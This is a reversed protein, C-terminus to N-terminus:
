SIDMTHETFDDEAQDLPVRPEYIGERGWSRLCQQQSITCRSLRSRVYSSQMGASSFTRESESSSSLISLFDVAMVSLAPFRSENLKWWSIPDTEFQASDIPEEVIYREYEDLVTAPTQTITSRYPGIKRNLRRQIYSQHAVQNVRPQNFRTPKDKYKAAWLARIRSQYDETWEVSQRTPLGNWMQEVLRWKKCPHFVVAAVYAIPTMLHYYKDLRQWALKIFVKILRRTEVGIDTFINIIEMEGDVNERLVRGQVAEELHDLLLEFCPLYEHFAGTTSRKDPQGSGQLQKTVVEFPELILDFTKIIEWDQTSLRCDLVPPRDKAKAGAINWKEEITHFFYNIQRRLLLARKIMARDSQWRTVVNHVFELTPIPEETDLNGEKAVQRAVEIQAQIFLDHLQSSRHLAVGTNHLKGMPGNKRFHQLGPATASFLVSSNVEIPEFPDVIVSENGVEDSEDDEDDEDEDTTTYEDVARLARHISVGDDEDGIDDGIEEPTTAIVEANVKSNGYLM